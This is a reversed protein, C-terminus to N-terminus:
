TSSGDLGRQLQAIRRRFARYEPSKPDRPMQGTRMRGIAEIMVARMQLHVQARYAAEATRDRVEDAHEKIRRELEDSRAAVREARAALESDGLSGLDLAEIGLDLLEDQDARMAAVSRQQEAIMEQIEDIDADMARLGHEVEALADLSDDTWDRM